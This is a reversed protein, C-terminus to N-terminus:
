KKCCSEFPRGRDPRSQQRRCLAKPSRPDQRYCPYLRYCHEPLTCRAILRCSGRRSHSGISHQCAASRRRPFHQRPCVRHYWHRFHYSNLRQLLKNTLNNALSQRDEPSSKLSPNTNALREARERALSYMCHLNRRCHQNAISSLWHQKTNRLTSVVPPYTRCVFSLDVKM